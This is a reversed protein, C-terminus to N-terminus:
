LLMAIRRQLPTPRVNMDPLPSLDLSQGLEPNDGITQLVEIAQKRTQWDSTATLCSELCPMLSPLVEDFDTGEVAQMAYICASLLQPKAMALPLSLHQEGM